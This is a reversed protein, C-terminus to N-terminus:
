HQEHTSAYIQAMLQGLADARASDEAPSRVSLPLKAVIEARLEEARARVAHDVAPHQGVVVLLTCADMLRDDHLYLRAFGLLAHGGVPLIQAEVALRLADAFARRAAAEDGLALAADGLSALALGHAHREGLAAFIEAAEHQLFHAEAVEGQTLALLGLHHRAYGMAWRDHASVSVTVSERLL